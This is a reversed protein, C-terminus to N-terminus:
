LFFVFNNMLSIHECDRMFAVIDIQMLISQKKTITLKNLERINIVVRHKRKSEENSDNSVTRWVIFISFEFSTFKFFWQMKSKEHLKDFKKDIIHLKYAISM